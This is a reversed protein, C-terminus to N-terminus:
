SAVELKFRFVGIGIVDGDTLSAPRSLPLENLLTGTASGLDELWWTGNDHSIRAHHSSTSADNLMITNDPDRGLRTVPQLPLAEGVVVSESQASAVVRLRHSSQPVATSRIWAQKLDQWIIYFAVGLFSYLIVTAVIRLGLLVWDLSVM